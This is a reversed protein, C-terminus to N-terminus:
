QTPNPNDKSFPRDGGDSLFGTFAFIGEDGQSMGLAQGWASCIGLWMLQFFTNSIHDSRLQMPFASGPLGSGAGWAWSPTM